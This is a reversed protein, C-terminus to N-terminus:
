VGEDVMKSTISRIIVEEGASQDLAVRLITIGLKPVWTHITARSVGLIEAQEELPMGENTKTIIWGKVDESAIRLIAQKMARSTVPSSKPPGVKTEALATKISM